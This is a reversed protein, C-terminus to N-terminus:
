GAMIIELVRKSAIDQIPAQLWPLLQWDRASFFHKTRWSVVGYWSRLLWQQYSRGYDDRISQNPKGSPIQAEESVCTGADPGALRAWHFSTNPWIRLLTLVDSESGSGVDLWCCSIKLLAMKFNSWFTSPWFSLLDQVNSICCWIGSNSKDSLQLRCARQSDSRNWGLLHGKSITSQLKHVEIVVVM